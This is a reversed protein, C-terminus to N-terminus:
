SECRRGFCDFSYTFSYILSHTLSLTANGQEFAEMADFLMAAPSTSGIHRITEIPEPVRMLLEKIAVCCIIYSIAMITIM